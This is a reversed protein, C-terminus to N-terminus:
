RDVTGAVSPGAHHAAAPRHSRREGYMRGLVFIMAAICVMPIGTVSFVTSPSLHMDLLWGGVLPGAIGGIRGVGLAWGLGTSRMSSPYYVAALAILSKQGGSVCFGACFTVVLLAWLPWTLAMGLALLCGFGIFYVVALTLYPDLRDMCPGTVLAAAIGGVTTLTTALAVTGIAYGHGSLVTPLWSQLFYFLGLNVIFALWLILTGAGLRQRFLTGFSARAAEPTEVTLPATATAPLQPQLLRLLRYAHAEDHKHLLLFRISAPLYLMLLFALVFPVSGGVLLMAHWGFRPMLQAAAIGAAVFGLSFGCYIALVFSARLRRPSYEGTLAIASPAAAGLGVGTLFRLVMLEGVNGAALTLFTFISFAFTAAVLIKKHGIRDSLPSLFLYGIMLGVLASSFIPGLESRPIAWEHALQPAIYSIAQTDFGDLFMVLGCLIVIIIQFRSLRGRDILGTVDIPNDLQNM